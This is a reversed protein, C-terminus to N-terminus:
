SQPFCLLWGVAEWLPQALKSGVLLALIGIEGCRALVIKKENSNDNNTQFIAMSLPSLHNRTTFKIQM